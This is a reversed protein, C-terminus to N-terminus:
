EARAQAQIAVGDRRGIPLVSRIDYVRGEDVIRHLHPSLQLQEDRIRYGTDVDAAVQQAAFREGARLPERACWVNQRIPVWQPVVQGSADRVEIQEEITILRDLAGAGGKV